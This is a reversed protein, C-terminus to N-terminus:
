PTRCRPAWTSRHAAAPTAEDAQAGVEGPPEFPGLARAAAHVRDERPGDVDLPAVPAQERQVPRPRQEGGERGGDVVFRPQASEARVNDDRDLGAPEERRAEAQRPLPGLADVARERTGTRAARTGER